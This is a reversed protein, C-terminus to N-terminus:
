ATKLPLRQLGTATLRLVEARPPQAEADWDSLVFRKLGDGLDHTAPRHTHGHILTQAGAQQLWQRAAPTDVDAWLQPDHASNRKRAESQARLGRAVAEREILSQALFASQWEPSRVEARFQMYDTDDLCLADGHSLLWRQGQFALVTPDALAHMGFASMGEHGLLFDRNGAMFYVPTHQSHAHLLDACRRWFAPDIRDAPAELVDDGVWVEFLDGLIFLADARETPPRQLFRQWCAFTAPHSAQLHLDSIFDVAQWQAPARLEAFRDTLSANM